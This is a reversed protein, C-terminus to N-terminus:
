HSNVWGSSKRLPNGFPELIARIGPFFLTPAPHTAGLRIALFAVWAPGLPIPCLLARGFLTKPITPRQPNNPATASPRLKVPQLLKLVVIPVGVGAAVIESRLGLLIFTPLEGNIRVTSPPLKAVFETTCHFRALRVVVNTLEVSTVATTGALSMECAPVTLM